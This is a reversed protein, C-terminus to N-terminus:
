RTSARPLPPAGEWGQRVAVKNRYWSAFGRGGYRSDWADHLANEAEEWALGSLKDTRAMEDGYRYAPGPDDFGTDYADPHRAPHGDEHHENGLDIRGWGHLVADKFRDWPPLEGGHRSSWSAKRDAALATWRRMRYQFGDRAEPAAPRDVAVILFRGVLATARDAEMDSGTTLTLVHSRAEEDATIGKGAQGAPAALSLAVDARTFGAALLKNLAHQAAGRDDFVATLTHRM